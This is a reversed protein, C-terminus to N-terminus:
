RRNPFGSLLWARNLQPQSPRVPDQNRVAPRLLLPVEHGDFDNRLVFSWVRCNVCQTRNHFCKRGNCAPNPVTSPLYKIDPVFETRRFLETTKGEAMVSQLPYCFQSGGYGDSTISSFRRIGGSSFSVRCSFTVLSVLRSLAPLRSKILGPSCLCV